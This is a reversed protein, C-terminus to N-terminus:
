ILLDYFLIFRSTFDFLCKVNVFRDWSISNDNLLIIILLYFFLIVLLYPVDILLYQLLLLLQLPVKCEDCFFLFFFALHCCYVVILWNLIWYIPSKIMSLFIFLVIYAIWTRLFLYTPVLFVLFFLKILHNVESHFLFRVKIILLSLLITLLIYQCIASSVFLVTFGKNLSHKFAKSIKLLM